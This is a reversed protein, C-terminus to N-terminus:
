ATLPAGFAKRRAYANMLLMTCRAQCLIYRQIDSPRSALITAAHPIAAGTPPAHQTWTSPLAPLEHLFTSAPISSHTCFESAPLGPISRLQGSAPPLSCCTTAQLCCCTHLHYGPWPQLALHAHPQYAMHAPTVTACGTYQTSSSFSGTHM